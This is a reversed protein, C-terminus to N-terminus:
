LRLLDNLYPEIDVISGIKDDKKIRYNKNSSILILNTIDLINDDIDFFTKYFVRNSTEGSYIDINSFFTRYLNILDLTLKNKKNFIDRSSALNSVFIGTKKLHSKILALYDGSYFRSDIGTNNAVDVVILDYKKKISKLFVIGDQLYFNMKDTQKFNFYKKAIDFINEEIDVIDIRKLNDFLSLYQKIVIGSGFGIILIDKINKNMLYPILFYNIYPLNGSYYPSKIFGAQYTDLYKIFVGVKNKVVFISHFGSEIECLVKEQLETENMKKLLKRDAKHIQLFEPVIIMICNIVYFFNNSM